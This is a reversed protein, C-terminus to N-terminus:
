GERIAGIPFEKVEKVRNECSVTQLAKSVLRQLVAALM